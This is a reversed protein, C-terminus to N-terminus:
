QPNWRMNGACHWLEIENGFLWERTNATNNTAAAKVGSFMVILMAMSNVMFHCQPRGSKICTENNKWPWNRKCNKEKKDWCGGNRCGNYAYSNEEWLFLKRKETSSIYLVVRNKLVTVTSNCLISGHLKAFFDYSLPLKFYYIALRVILSFSLLFQIVSIFFLMTNSWKVPERVHHRWALRFLSVSLDGVQCEQVFTGYLIM